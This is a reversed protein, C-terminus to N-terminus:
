AISDFTYPVSFSLKYYSGDDGLPTAMGPVDTEVYVGDLVTEGAENFRLARFATALAEAYDLAGDLGKKPGVHIVFRVTGEERMMREGAVGLTVQEGRALPFEVLVFDALGAPAQKEENPYIVDCASFTAAVRARVANLVTRSPM